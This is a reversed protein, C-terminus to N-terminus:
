GMSSRVWCNAHAGRDSRKGLRKCGHCFDSFCTFCLFRWYFPVDLGWNGHPMGRTSPKPDAGEMDPPGAQRKPRAFSDGCLLCSSERVMRRVVLVSKNRLIDADYLTDSTWALWVGPRPLPQMILRKFTQYNPAQQWWVFSVEPWAFLEKAGLFSQVVHAVSTAFVRLILDRQAVRPANTDVRQRKRKRASM